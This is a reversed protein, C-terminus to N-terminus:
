EVCVCLVLTRKAEWTALIHIYTHKIDIDIKTKNTSKAFTEHKKKQKTYINKKKTKLTKTGKSRAEQKTQIRERWTVLHHHRTKHQKEGRCWWQLLASRGHHEETCPVGLGATFPTPPHVLPSIWREGGSGERERPFVEGLCRSLFLSLLLPSSRVCVCSVLRVSSVFLRSSM